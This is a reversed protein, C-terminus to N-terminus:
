QKLRSRLNEIIQPLTRDCIGNQQAESLASSLMKLQEEYSLGDFMRKQEETPVAWPYCDIRENKM